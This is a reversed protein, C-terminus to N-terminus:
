SRTERSGNERISVTLDGSIDTFPPKLTVTEMEGPAVAARNKQAVTKEGDKVEIVANRYVGDPRFYLKVEGGRLLVPSQPVANSAGEAGGSLFNPSQPAADSVGASGRLINLKQPVVYSVGAGNEVSVFRKKVAGNLAFAAASRGALEAEESVFDVLDHVQLVNGCAFVGPLSTERTEDVAAGRTRPDIEVGAKRALENEPILGVSFLVTDCPIFRETGAVPRKRGDVQAVTVGEVRERGHIRTVTTSLYLPIGFDDLCQAINRRLGSSYPMIECVARVRAGELTMRRAMILGIDGSGLIVIEKGVSEGYLNVYKQATGASYLGAPRSGPINLAGKGRERCGMALIVAKARIEFIGGRGNAATITKQSGRGARIGLVTTGTLSAIGRKEVESVFRAAYEPGTMNERFRTLGFGNHICQKLIGGLADERELILTDAAGADYCAAAAALGAPGGGVIVIDKKLVNNKL